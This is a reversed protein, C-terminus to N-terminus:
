GLGGALREVFASAARSVDEGSSSARNIEGVLASGVIAADASRVVARVHEPTSIGFGVALPLDTVGRLESIRADIQPADDSTGTIGARALVYVFGSCRSAIAEAREIPTTPAVLLSACLGTGACADLFPDADELSVDPFICGDFGADRARECFATAGGLRNVISVSVMAVLGARVDNRCSAVAEFIGEARAGSRLAQDMAAAIVPGDAIPDSFPFGVEIISAGAQDVGKLLGLLDELTPHGGVVFPMLGKRGDSRLREFTQVIRNMPPQSM